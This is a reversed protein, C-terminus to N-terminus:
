VGDYFVRSELKIEPYGALENTVIIKNTGRRLEIFRKTSFDSNAYQDSVLASTTVNYIGISYPITTCDIVLQHGYNVLCNIKGTSVLSGNVYHSWTPNTISGVLPKITLRCPAKEINAHNIEIEMPKSVSFKIPWTIGGTTANWISSNGSVDPSNIIPDMLSYWPSLSYLKVGCNLVGQVTLESKSVSQVSVDKYFYENPLPSYLIKLDGEDLFRMFDFYQQYPSAGAFLLSGEIPTADVKSKVVIYRNGVERYEEDKDLGLGSVGYFLLEETTIDYQTGTKNILIFSRM